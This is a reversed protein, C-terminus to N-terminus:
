GVTSVTLYGTGSTTLGQWALQCVPGYLQFYDKAAILFGGGRAASSTVSIINNNVDTTPWVILDIADNPNHFLISTRSTRASLVTSATTSMSNFTYQSAGAYGFGSLNQNLKNLAQVGNQITTLIVDLSTSM